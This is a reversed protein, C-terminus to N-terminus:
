AVMEAATPLTLPDVLTTHSSDLCQHKPFVGLWPFDNEDLVPPWM